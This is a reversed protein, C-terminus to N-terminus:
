LHLFFSKKPALHSKQVLKLDLFIFHRKVVTSFVKQGRWYGIKTASPALEDFITDFVKRTPIGTYFRTKADNRINEEGFPKKTKRLLKQKYYKVENELKKIKMQLVEVKKGLNGCLECNTDKALAELIILYNHDSCIDVLTTSKPGSASAPVSESLLRKAKLPNTCLSLCM